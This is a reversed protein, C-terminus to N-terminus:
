SFRRRRKGDATPSRHDSPDRNRVAEASRADPPRNVAVPLFIILAAGLILGAQAGYSRFTEGIVGGIDVRQSESM